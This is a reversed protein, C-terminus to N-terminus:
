AVASYSKGCRGCRGTFPGQEALLKNCPKMLGRLMRMGDCRVPDPVSRLQPVAPPNAAPPAFPVPAFEVDGPIRGEDRRAEEPTIVGSDIGLQYVEYRTKIDARMFGRVNFRAVTSRTLLDSMHQEIPELYDPGLGAKVFTTFVETVNQYTLSSGPRGYELLAGPIGFMNASDGKISERADLM